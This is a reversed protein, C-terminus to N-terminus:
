MTRRRWFFLAYAIDLDRLFPAKTSEWTKTLVLAIALESLFCGMLVQDRREVMIGSMTPKVKATAKM